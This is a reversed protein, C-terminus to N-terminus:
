RARWRMLDKIGKGRLDPIDSSATVCKPYWFVDEPWELKFGFNLYMQLAIFLKVSIANAKEEFENDGPKAIWTNHFLDCYEGNDLVAAIELEYRKEGEPFCTVQDRTFEITRIKDINVLNDRSHSNGNEICTKIFM